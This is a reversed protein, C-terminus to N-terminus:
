SQQQNGRIENQGINNQGGSVRTGQDLNVNVHGHQLAVNFAYVIRGEVTAIMSMIERRHSESLEDSKEVKRSIERLGDSVGLISRTQEATTQQVDKISNTQGATLDVLHRERVIAWIIGIVNILLLVAIIVWPDVTIQFDGIM